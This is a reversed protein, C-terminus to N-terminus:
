DYGGDVFWEVTNERYIRYIGGNSLSVDWEDRGWPSETWWDGCTRWPGAYKLVDGAVGNALVRIPRGEVMSVRAPLPPRFLRICLCTPASVHADLLANAASGAAFRKLRFSGPRHTDLLEPSGVNEEGVIASIRALTLELKEPEPALPLFLGSQITRPAVPEAAVRVSVIAAKPPHSTLDYQLLKLFTGAERTAFPLRITRTWESRDELKLRMSVENAAMGNERLRECVENLLRSLVFSLPELLELPHDLDMSATYSIPEQFPVLPKSPLGCALKQLEVGEPGLREAIGIPPLSALQAFTRVGWAALTEQLEEPPSLLSLPLPGLVEKEEGPPIITTGTFGRAAAVAADPHAAIAINVSMDLSQARERLSQAIKQPGGFITRLGRIDLLAIEPAFGFVPTFSEIMARIPADCVLGPSYLCAYM